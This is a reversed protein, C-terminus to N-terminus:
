TVHAAEKELPMTLTFTAGKGLGESFAELSGGLEKAALASSHLGFGHGNKKTTFGFGFIRTMQKPDIGTGNDIIDIRLTKKEVAARVIVRRVPETSGNVAYKANSVVNILIQLVKHRDVDVMLKPDFERQIQVQHRNLGAHNIKIADEILEGLSVSSRIGSVRSLSQQMAVIERIHAINSALGDIEKLIAGNEDALAGALKCFFMPLTKGREDSTLFAAMDATHQQLLDAAKTLTAVRSAKIADHVIQTSVNVSNLVNGVNHLVGTAVDAMGARRSAEVLNSQMEQRKREAEQRHEMEAQLDGNARKLDATREEVRAELEDRATRVDRLHLQIQEDRQRIGDLMHNFADALQGIEDNGSKPARLTYNNEESVRRATEALAVVPTSVSRQLRRIILLGAGCAVILILPSISAYLALRGYLDRLDSRMYITGVSKGDLKVPRFVEM